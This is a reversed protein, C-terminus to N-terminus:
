NSVYLYVGLKWGWGDNGGVVKGDGRLYSMFVKFEFGMISFEVVRVWVRGWELSRRFRVEYYIEEIM